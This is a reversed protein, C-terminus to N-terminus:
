HCLFRTIINHCRRPIRLIVCDMKSDFGAALIVRKHAIWCAIKNVHDAVAKPNYLILRKM